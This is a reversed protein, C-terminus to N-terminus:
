RAPPIAAASAADSPVPEFSPRAGETWYRQHCTDCAAYVDGGVRFIEDPNRSQAATLALKGADVLGRSMTMWEGQDVPRDGIMLLNGSEMLVVAANEIPIWEEESRPFFDEVGEATVISGVSAWLVDAAPDVVSHMLEATTAIPMFPPLPPPLPARNCASLLLIALTAGAALAPPLTRMNVEVTRRVNVEDTRRM